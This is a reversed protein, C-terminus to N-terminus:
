EAQKEEREKGVKVLGENIMWSATRGYHGQLSWVVGTDLLHQFFEIQEEEEMQGSEYRSIADVTNM